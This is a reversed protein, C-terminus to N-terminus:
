HVLEVNRPPVLEGVIGVHLLEKALLLVRGLWRRNQLRGVFTPGAIFHGQGVQSFDLSRAGNLM